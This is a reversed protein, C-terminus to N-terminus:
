GYRAVLLVRPPRSLREAIVSAMSSSCSSSKRALQIFASCLQRAGNRDAEEAGVAEAELGLACPGLREDVVEVPEPEQQARRRRPITRGPRSRVRGPCRSRSPLIPLHSV